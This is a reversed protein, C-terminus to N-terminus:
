RSKRITATGDSVTLRGCVEIWASPSNVNDGKGTMTRASVGEMQVQAVTIETEQTGQDVSWINPFENWRNFYVRYTSDDEHAPM